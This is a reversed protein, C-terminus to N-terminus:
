SVVNVIFFFFYQLLFSKPGCAWSSKTVYLTKLYRNMSYLVLRASWAMFVTLDNVQIVVLFDRHKYRVGTVSSISFVTVVPLQLRIHNSNFILV